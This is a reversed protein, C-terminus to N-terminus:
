ARNVHGYKRKEGKGQGGKNQKGEGERAHNGPRNSEM